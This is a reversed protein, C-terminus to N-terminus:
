QASEGHPSSEVVSEATTRQLIQLLMMLVSFTLLKNKRLTLTEALSKLRPHKTLLKDLKDDSLNEKVLKRYAEYKDRHGMPVEEPSSFGDKKQIVAVAKEAYIKDADDKGLAETNIGLKIKLYNSAEQSNALAMVLKKENPNLGLKKWANEIAEQPLEELQYALLVGSLINEPMMTPQYGLPILWSIVLDDRLDKLREGFIKAAEEGLTTATNHNARILEDYIFAALNEKAEPPTKEDYYTALLLALRGTAEDPELKKLREELKKRDVRITDGERTFADGGAEQLRKELEEVGLSILRAEVEKVRQTETEPIKLYHGSPDSPMPTVLPNLTDYLKQARKARETPKESDPDTTKEKAIKGLEDVIPKTARSLLVKEKTPKGDADVIYYIGKEGDYFKAKIREADEGTAGAQTIARKAAEITADAQNLLALASNLQSNAELAKKRKEIETKIAPDNAPEATEISLQLAVKAPDTEYKERILDIASSWSQQVEERIQEPTKAPETKDLQTPEPPVSQAKNPATAAVTESPKAPASSPSSEPPAMTSSAIPPTEPPVPPGEGSM